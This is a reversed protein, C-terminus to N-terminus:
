ATASCIRNGPLCIRRSMPWRAMALGPRDHHRQWDGFQTVTKKRELAFDDRREFREVTLRKVGIRPRTGSTVTQLAVPKGTEDFIAAEEFPAAAVKGMDPPRAKGRGGRRVTLFKSAAREFRQAYREHEVRTVWVARRHVEVNAKEDRVAIVCLRVDPPEAAPHIEGRVIREDFIDDMEVTRAAVRDMGTASVIRAVPFPFRPTVTVEEEFVAVFWPANAAEEEVIKAGVAVGRKVSCLPEGKRDAVMEQGSVQRDDRPAAVVGVAFPLPLELTVPAPAVDLEVQDPIPSGDEAQLCPTSGFRDQHGQGWHDMPAVIPM